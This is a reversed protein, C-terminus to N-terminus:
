FKRRVSIALFALLASGFLWLAGPLPVESIDSSQAPGSWFSGVDQAYRTASLLYSSVPDAAVGQGQIAGPRAGPRPGDFNTMAVHVAGERLAATDAVAKTQAPLEVGPMREAVAKVAIAPTPPLSAPAPLAAQVSGCLIMTVASALAALRAYMM